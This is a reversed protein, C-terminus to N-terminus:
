GYIVFHVILKENEESVSKTLGEGDADARIIFDNQSIDNNRKDLLVLTIRTDAEVTVKLKLTHGDNSIQSSDITYSEGDIEYSDNVSFQFANTSYEITGDVFSEGVNYYLSFAPNVTQVQLYKAKSNNSDFGYNSSRITPVAVPKDGNVLTFTFVHAADKPSENGASDKATVVFTYDGPTLNKLKTLALSGDSKSKALPIGEELEGEDVVENTNTDTWRYFTVVAGEESVAGSDGQVQDWTGSYNDIISFKSVDVTPATTDAPVSPNMNGSDSSGGSSSGSNNSSTSPAPTPVPTPTVEPTPTPTPVPEPQPGTTEKISQLLRSATLAAAQRDAQLVPKFMNNQDGIIFGAELAAGVADKAYESISASDKFTLSAAKGTVDTGKARMLTVVMDQRSLTKGSGFKGSGMGKFIGAQYVAEVSAYAYSTVPIDTFSPNSPVNNTVDLKLTRAILIAFDQRTIMGSPNFQGDSFGTVIGENQLEVIADKAYSKDIDTFSVAANAQTTWLPTTLLSAALISSIFHNKKM